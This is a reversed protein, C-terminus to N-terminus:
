HNSPRSKFVVWPGFIAVALAFPIISAYAWRFGFATELFGILPPGIFISAWGMASVLAVGFSPRVGRLRGAAAVFVPFFFAFGFGIMFAAILGQIYSPTLILWSLGILGFLTGFFLM